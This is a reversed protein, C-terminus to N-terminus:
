AALEGEVTSGEISRRQRPQVGVFMSVMADVLGPARAMQDPTLDLADLMRAWLVAMQAGVSATVERRIRDEVEPPVDAGTLRARDMVIRRVEGAAKVDGSTAAKWLGLQLRDLREIEMAKLEDVAEDLKKARAARARQYDKCAAAKDAYGLQKAIEDWSAGAKRLEINRLRRAATEDQQAKSVAM